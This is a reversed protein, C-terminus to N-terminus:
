RWADGFFSWLKPEAPKQEPIPMTEARRPASPRKQSVSPEQNQRNASAASPRLLGVASRGIAEAFAALMDPSVNGILGTRIKQLWNYWARMKAAQRRAPSPEAAWLRELSERFQQRHEGGIIANNRGNRPFVEGLIKAEPLQRLAPFFDSVTWGFVSCVHVFFVRKPLARGLRWRSVLATSSHALRARELWARGASTRAWYGYHLWFAETAEPRLRYYTGAWDYYNMLERPLDTKALGGM